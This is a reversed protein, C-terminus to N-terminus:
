DELIRVWLDRLCTGWSIKRPRWTWWVTAYFPVGPYFEQGITRSVKDFEEQMKKRGVVQATWVSFIRRLDHLHVGNLSTDKTWVDSCDGTRPLPRKAVEINLSHFRAIGLRESGDFKTFINLLVGAAPMWVESGCRLSLNLMHRLKKDTKINMRFGVWDQLVSGDQFQLGVKALFQIDVDVKGQPDRGGFVNIFACGQQPFDEYWSYPRVYQGTQDFSYMLRDRNGGQGAIGTALRLDADDLLLKIIFRAQRIIRESYCTYAARRVAM